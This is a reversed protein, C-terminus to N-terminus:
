NSLTYAIPLLVTAGFGLLVGIAVLTRSKIIHGITGIVFGLVLLRVFFAPSVRFDGGQGPGSSPDLFNAM